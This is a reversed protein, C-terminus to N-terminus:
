NGKRAWAAIRHKVEDLSLSKSEEAKKIKEVFVAADTKEEEFKNIDVFDLSKLHDLLAKGKKGSKIKLVYTM